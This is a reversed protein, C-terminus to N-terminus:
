VKRGRWSETLDTDIMNDEDYTISNDGQDLPLWDELNSPTISAHVNLVMNGETYTVRRTETNITLTSNM